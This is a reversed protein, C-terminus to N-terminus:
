RATLFEIDFSYRYNKTETDRSEGRWATIHAYPEIADRLAEAGERAETATEAYVDIQVLFTDMDPTNSIYNEPGGSVTQWVAYPLDAEDPASGFPWVRVPDTGFIASIDSDDSILEFLPPYM